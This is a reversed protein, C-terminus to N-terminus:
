VSSSRRFKTNVFGISTAQLLRLRNAQEIWKFASKNTNIMRKMKSKEKMREKKRERKRENEMWRRQPQWNIRISKNENKTMKEEIESSCETEIEVPWLIQILDNSDIQKVIFVNLQHVVAVSIHTLAHKYPQTHTRMFFFCKQSIWETGTIHHAITQVYTYSGILNVYFLSIM